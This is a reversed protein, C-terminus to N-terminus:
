AGLTKPTKIKAEEFQKHIYKIIKNELDDFLYEDQNDPKTVAERILTIPTFLNYIDM